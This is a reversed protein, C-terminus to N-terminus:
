RKRCPAQAFKESFRAMVPGLLDANEATLIHWEPSAIVAAWEADSLNSAYELDFAVRGVAGDDIGLAVFGFLGAGVGDGGRRAGYRLREVDGGQDGPRGRARGAQANRALTGLLQGVVEAVTRQAGGGALALVLRESPALGHVEVAELHEPAM